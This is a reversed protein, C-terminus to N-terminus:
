GVEFSHTVIKADKEDGDLYATFPNILVIDSIRQELTRDLAVLFDNGVLDNVQCIM